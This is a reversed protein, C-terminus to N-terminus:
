RKHGFPESLAKTFGLDDLQRQGIAAVAGHLHQAPAWGALPNLHLDGTGQATRDLCQYTEQIASFRGDDFAGLSAPQGKQALFFPIDPPSVAPSDALEHEPGDPASGPTQNHADTSRGHIVSTNSGDLGRSSANQIRVSALHFGACNSKAINERDRRPSDGLIELSDLNDRYRVHAIGENARLSGGSHVAWLFSQRRFLDILDVLGHAPVSGNQSPIQAAVGGM